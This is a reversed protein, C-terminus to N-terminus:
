AVRLGYPETIRRGTTVYTDIFTKLAASIVEPNEQDLVINLADSVWPILKEATTIVKLVEKAAPAAKAKLKAAEEDLLRLFLGETVRQGALPWEGQLIAGAHLRKWLAARRIEATALDEMLQLKLQPSQVAAAASGGLYAAMYQLTITIDERLGSETLPGKPHARLRAALEKSYWDTRTPPTGIADYGQQVAKEFIPQIVAVM